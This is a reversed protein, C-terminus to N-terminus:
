VGMLSYGHVKLWKKHAKYPPCLSEVAQWFAPSHNMHVLHVVEHICVYEAVERPALILRWNLSITKDRSCSGWRSRMDRFTVAEVRQGLDHAMQRVYPVLCVEAQQKLSEHLKKRLYHPPLRLTQTERCVVPKRRLPDSVCRFEEGYLSVSEGDEIRIGEELKRMNKEIWPLCQDLFRQRAVESTRPPITLM